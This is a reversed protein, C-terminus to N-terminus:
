LIYKRSTPDIQIAKNYYKEANKSQHLAFYIHGIQFNLYSNDPNFKYAELFKVLAEEYFPPGKYYLKEGDMFIKYAANFEAEKQPFNSKKWDVNRQANLLCTSVIIAFVTIFKNMM